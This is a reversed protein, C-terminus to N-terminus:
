SLWHLLYSGSPRAERPAAIPHIILHARQAQVQDVPHHLRESSRPEKVHDAEVYSSTTQISPAKQRQALHVFSKQSEDPHYITKACRLHPSCHFGKPSRHMHTTPQQVQPTPINVVAPRAYKNPSGGPSQHIYGPRNRERFRAVSCCRPAVSPAAASKIRQTRM